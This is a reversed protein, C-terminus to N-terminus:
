SLSFRRKKPKVAVVSVSEEISATDKSGHRFPNLKVLTKSVSSFFTPKKGATPPPPLAAMPAKGRGGQSRQMDTMYLKMRALELRLSENEKALADDAPRGRGSSVSSLSAEDPTNGGSRLKLQDYYLAPLVVQLPLRKNQSAHLRADYSLRFPDMVSCAKEREIEDLRSHAKLYIDVARYLDDDFRRASKPLAGAIGAFMSVPLDEETAIEALFADVIRAVRQAAAGVIELEAFGVVIRRVSGLDTLRQGSYDFSLTMLDGIAAQDLSASIRRELDNRSAASSDLFIAARLLSCLFGVPLPADRDAPLISILFENFKRHTTLDAPASPSPRSGGGASLLLEPLSKGAYAVVATSLTKPAAGFSKMAALSKQFFPPKLLALEAAWWDPPPRSPSNAEHIAKYGIAEVCRQVIRLKEAFALIGECSNLVAVAGPLTGLAAKSLFEDARAALNGECSKETMELWEAACRLATVNQVSIEFNVGYCFRAAKEFAEAGGPIGKIEIIALDSRDSEMIKRRIYGSKALLIFKHLPFSADDVKIVIDSPIEQSFVWQGTREMAVSLRPAAAAM